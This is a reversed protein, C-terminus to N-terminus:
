EFISLVFGWFCRWLLMIDHFLQLSKRLLGIRQSAARSVSPLHKEFTLNSEFTVGLIVLDNSEMLVTRGITLAPSQPHMTCSWSVIVTKAKVTLQGVKAMNTWPMNFQMYVISETM